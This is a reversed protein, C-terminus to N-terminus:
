NRVKAWGHDILEKVLRGQQSHAHTEIQSQTPSHKLKNIFFLIPLFLLHSLQAKKPKILFTAQSQSRSSHFFQNPHYHYQMPFSGM